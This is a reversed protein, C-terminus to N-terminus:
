GSYSGDLINLGSALSAFRGYHQGTSTDKEGLWIGIIQAYGNATTWVPGGSDGAISAPMGTTLYQDVGQMGSIAGCHRGSSVGLHCVQQGIQPQPHGVGIPTGHIYASPLAKGGFDVLGYDAGGNHRPEVVARVFQVTTQTQTDRAYGNTSNRCHGATVAYTHRDPGTYAYGITCFQGPGGPNIYDLRDGAGILNPTAGAPAAAAISAAALAAAACGRLAHTV